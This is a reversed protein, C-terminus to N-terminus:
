ATCRGFLLDDPSRFVLQSRHRDKVPTGSILKTHDVYRHLIRDGIPERRHIDKVDTFSIDTSQKGTYELDFASRSLFVLDGDFDEAIASRHASVFRDLM